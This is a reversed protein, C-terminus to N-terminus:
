QPASCEMAIANLEDQTKDLIVKVCSMCLRRHNSFGNRQVKLLGVKTSSKLGSNCRSCSGSRKVTDYTIGGNNTSLLSPVKGKPM